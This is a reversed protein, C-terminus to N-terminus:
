NQNKKNEKKKKKPGKSRSKAGIKGFNEVVDSKTM